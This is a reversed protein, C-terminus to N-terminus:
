SMATDANRSSSRKKSNGNSSFIVNGSDDVKTDSKKNTNSGSVNIALRIELVFSIWVIAQFIMMCSTRLLGSGIWDNVIHIVEFSEFVSLGVSFVMGTIGAKQRNSSFEQVGAMAFGFRGLQFMLGVGTAMLIATLNPLQTIQKFLYSYHYFQIAFMLFVSLALSITLLVEAISANRGLFNYKQM